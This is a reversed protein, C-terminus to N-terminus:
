RPASATLLREEYAALELEKKSLRCLAVPDGYYFYMGSSYFLCVDENDVEAEYAFFGRRLHVLAACASM